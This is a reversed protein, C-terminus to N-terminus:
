LLAPDKAWETFSPFQIWTGDSGLHQWARQAVTSTGVIVKRERERKKERKLAVGEAYPIEWALSRIQAVAAPRCWLWLLTPYLGFRCGIGCSM